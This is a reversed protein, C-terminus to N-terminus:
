FDSRDGERRGDTATPDHEILKQLYNRLNKPTALAEDRQTEDRMPVETLAPRQAM